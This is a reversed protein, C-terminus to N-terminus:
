GKRLSATLKPILELVDVAAGFHAFGYIPAKEDRNVAVILEADRMGEAHEPAGSIGLALYLKPKVQKGSKGVLRTVPLWEQDIVPRSGAVVGGLAKALEEALAINDKNQIGRGVSVLIAEKAIDVDGTPPEIYQKFRTRLQDLGAPPAVTEVAPSRAARGEEPKYGGSMVTALCTPEPLPGTAILKGGCTLASYQVTGGDQSFSRCGSIIPVRLRRALGCALDTGMATHGLLVVRPKHQQLLATVVSLHAEPNFEALSPHEVCVVRDAAGLEGALKQADHGILLATLKTKLAEALGRGGALMTFTIETVRGRLTEVVVCVEGCM